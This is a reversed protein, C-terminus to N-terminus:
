IINHIEKKRESLVLKKIQCIEMGMGMLIQMGMGM